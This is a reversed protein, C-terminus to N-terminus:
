SSLYLRQRIESAQLFRWELCHCRRHQQTVVPISALGLAMGPQQFSGSSPSLGVDLSLM